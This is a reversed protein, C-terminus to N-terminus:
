SHQERTFKGYPKCIQYYVLGTALHVERVALKCKTDFPLGYDYFIRNVTPCLSEFGICKYKSNYMIDPLHDSDSLDPNITLGYCGGAKSIIFVFAKAMGIDMLGMREVLQKSFTISNDNPDAIIYMGFIRDILKTFLRKFM